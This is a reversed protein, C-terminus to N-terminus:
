AFLNRQKHKKRPRKTVRVPRVSPGIKVVNLDYSTKRRLYAKRTKASVGEWKRPYFVVFGKKPAHIPM